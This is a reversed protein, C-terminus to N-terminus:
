RSSWAAPLEHGNYSIEGTPKIVVITPTGRVGFHRALAASRDRVQPYPLGLKHATNRVADEDVVDDPGTVVGYFDISGALRGAAAALEPGERLCAACWTQWFVLAVAREAAFSQGLDYEVGDLGALTMWASDSDSVQELPAAAGRDVPSSCAGVLLALGLFRTRM